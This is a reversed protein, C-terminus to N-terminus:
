CSMPQDPKLLDYTCRLSAEGRFSSLISVISTGDFSLAVLGEDAVGASTATLRISGTPFIGPMVVRSLIVLDTERTITRTASGETWATTTIGTLRQQGSQLRDLTAVDHRTLQVPGDAITTTGTVDNTLRIAVVEASWESRRGGAADLLEYSRDFALTGSTATACEFRGTAAVFPCDPGRRIQRLVFPSGLEAAGVASLPDALQAHFLADDLTAQVVPATPEGCAAALM